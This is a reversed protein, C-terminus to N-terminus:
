LIRICCSAAFQKKYLDLYTNCISDKTLSEGNEYKGHIIHEFEAFMTQRFVTAKFKDLYEVIYYIKEDISKSNKTMYESFLIENVTSAIEALFIPYGAYCFINNKDSYYSHMAHGM